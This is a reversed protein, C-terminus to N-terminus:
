SRMEMHECWGGERTVACITPSAELKEACRERASLPRQVHRPPRATALVGVLACGPAAPQSMPEHLAPDPCTGRGRNLGGPGSEHCTYTTFIQCKRDFLTLDVQPVGGARAVRFRELLLHVALRRRQRLGVLPICIQCTTSEKAACAVASLKGTMLIDCTVEGAWRRARGM